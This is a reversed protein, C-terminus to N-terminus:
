KKSSVPGRPVRGERRCAQALQDPTPADIDVIGMETLQGRVRGTERGPEGGLQEITDILDKFKTFYSANAMRNGQKFSAFRDQADQLSHTAHRTTGRTRMCRRILRLLEIVNTNRHVNNWNGAAELRNRLAESCQGLVVAYAQQSVERRTDVREIHSKFRARWVDMRAQWIQTQAVNEPDAPGPPPVPETIDEFGLNDPDFAIVFEGGGKYTRAIYESIERTTKAFM